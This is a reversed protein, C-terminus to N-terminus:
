TAHSYSSPLELTDTVHHKGFLPAIPRYPQSFALTALHFRNEYSVWFFSISKQLLGVSLVGINKLCLSASLFGLRKGHRLGFHTTSVLKM